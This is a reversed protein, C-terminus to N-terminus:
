RPGYIFTDRFKRVFDWDKEGATFDEIFQQSEDPDARPNDPDKFEVLLTRDDEEIIFDVAKMCHTLGHNQGDFKRVRSPSHVTLQLDGENFSAM